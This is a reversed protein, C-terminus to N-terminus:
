AAFRYAAIVAWCTCAAKALHIRGPSRTCIVSPGFGFYYPVPGPAIDVTASMRDLSNRRNPMERLVTANSLDFTIRLSPMRPLASNAFYAGGDRAGSRRHHCSRHRAHSKRAMGSSYDIM